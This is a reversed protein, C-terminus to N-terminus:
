YKTVLAPAAEGGFKYRLAASVIHVDSEAKANFEGFLAPPIAAPFPASIDSKGPVFVYSYGLDVAIRENVNYSAGASLWWRDNDPLRVTRNGDDIPSWEYAVGARLTLDPMVKYEGGLSLFYGDKYDFPLVTVQNGGSRTKVDFSKFQSWDTWEFGALVAFVDTVQQRVGVNVSQPLAVDAKIKQEQLGLPTEARLTGKLSHSIRSRYGIGIDTGEMPKFTAGATFGFGVDDGVLKTSGAGPLFPLAAGPLPIGALPTSQRLKIDFYQIQLGAAVSFWDNVQYGVTPTATVTLVKSTRALYQGAWNDRPDTVLGYPSNVSLGVVVKENIRYANYGAALIADQGIDGSDGISGAGGTFGAIAAKTADTAEITSKAFVGTVHQEGQFHEVQNIVAPNWFMGSISDGGGAAMGAFSMGQGTTSQERLAFAGAMASTAAGTAVIAAAATLLASRRRSLPGMSM